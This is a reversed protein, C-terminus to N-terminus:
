LLYDGVIELYKEIKVWEQGTQKKESSEMPWLGGKYGVEKNTFVALTGVM